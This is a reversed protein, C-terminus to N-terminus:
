FLKYYKASDMVSKYMNKVSDNNPKSFKKLIQRFEKLNSKLMPKFKAQFELSITKYYSFSPFVGGRAMEGYMVILDSATQLVINPDPHQLLTQYLGEWDNKRV